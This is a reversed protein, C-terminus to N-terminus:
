SSVNEWTQAVGKFHTNLKDWRDEGRGKASTSSPCQSGPSLKPDSFSSAFESVFQIRLDKQSDWLFGVFAICNEFGPPDSLVSNM